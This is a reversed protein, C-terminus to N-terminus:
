TKPLGKTAKSSFMMCVAACGYNNCGWCSPQGSSRLVCTHCFGCTIHVADAVDLVFGPIPRYQSVSSQQTNYGLQGQFNDTTPTQLLSSLVTLLCSHQVTVIMVITMMLVAVVCRGLVCCKRQEYGCM